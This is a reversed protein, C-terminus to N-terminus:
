GRVAFRQATESVIKQLEEISLMEKTSHAMAHCNPCLPILDKIPDVTHKGGTTSLQARHHHVHIYGKGILGYFKEFDFQCVRCRTGYHEICKLRAKPDREIREVMVQVRRGETYDGDQPNSEAAGIIEGQSLFFYSATREYFAKAFSYAYNETWYDQKFGARQLVANVSKQISTPDLEEYNDLLLKLYRYTMRSKTASRLSQYEVFDDEIKLVKLHAANKRDSGAGSKVVEGIKFTQSFEKKGFL